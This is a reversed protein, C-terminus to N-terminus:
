WKLLDVQETTNWMRAVYIIKKKYLNKDDFTCNHAAETQCNGVFLSFKNHGFLSFQVRISARLWWSQLNINLFFVVLISFLRYFRITKM